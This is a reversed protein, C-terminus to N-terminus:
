ESVVCLPGDVDDAAPAGTAGDDLDTVLRRLFCLHQVPQAFARHDDDMRSIQDVVPGPDRLPLFRHDLDELRPPNSFRGIALVYASKKLEEIRHMWSVLRDADINVPVAAWVGVEPNKSAIVHAIPDGEDMKSRDDATVTVSPQFFAFPDVSSSTPKGKLAKAAEANRPFLPAARQQAGSV